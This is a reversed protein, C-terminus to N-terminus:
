VRSWNSDFREIDDYGYEKFFEEFTYFMWRLLGDDHLRDAIVYYSFGNDEANRFMQGLTLRSIVPAERLIKDFNEERLLIAHRHIM